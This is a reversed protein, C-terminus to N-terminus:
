QRILDYIVASPLFSRLLVLLNMVLFISNIWAYSTKATKAKIRNLGYGSKGQGFKGEIPIRQVYDAQRQKKAAKLEAKNALTEKKPRGLPKGAYHIGKEKLYHRNERTGYLPDALVKEPYYGYRQRYSEVQTILDKGEHFSNWRLEDVCAIGSGNPSVSLKAGFEVAKNQKGRIIPRVHPQSISVIRDDCRRTKTNHMQQQQAVM